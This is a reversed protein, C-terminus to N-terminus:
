KLKDKHVKKYVKVYWLVGVGTYFLGLGGLINLFITTADVANEM